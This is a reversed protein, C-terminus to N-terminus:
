LLTEAGKGIAAGAHCADLILLGRGPVADLLAHLMAPTLSSEAEGDSLILRMGDERLVGHTVIYVCCVEDEAADGFAATLAEELSIADSVTDLCVTVREEPTGLETLTRAMLATDNAAVPWTDGMSVFHDCGVLLARDIGEAGACGMAALLLVVLLLLKRM